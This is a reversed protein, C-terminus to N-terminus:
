GVKYKQSVIGEKIKVIINTVEATMETNTIRDRAGVIDGILLDLNEVALSFVKKNKIANLRNIGSEELADSSEANPYDLVASVDDIGTYYPTTDITGDEQIYLHIIERAALQGSGLCILHNIGGQKDELIFDTNYDQSYEVTSSYDTQAPFSIVIGSDSYALSVVLGVEAALRTLGEYLTIYRPFKFATVTIITAIVSFFSNIGATTLLNTAITSVAGTVELYDDGNPPEIIKSALIGRWNRGSYTIRNNKTDIKRSEIKGGYETDPIYWMYGIELITGSLSCKLVFDKKDATDFDLEYNKLVGIEEDFDSMYILDM